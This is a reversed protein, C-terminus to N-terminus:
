EDNREADAVVHRAIQGLLDKPSMATNIVLKRAGGFVSIENSYRNYEAAYEFGQESPTTVHVDLVNTSRNGQARVRHGRLVLGSSSHLVLSMFYDRLTRANPEVAARILQIANVIM